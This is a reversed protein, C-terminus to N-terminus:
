DRVPAALLSSPEAHQNAAVAVTADTVEEYSSTEVRCVRLKEVLDKRITPSAALIHAPTTQVLQSLSLIRVQSPSLAIRMALPISADTMAHLCVIDSRKAGVIRPFSSRDPLTLFGVHTEEKAKDIADQIALKAKEIGAQDRGKLTWTSDGEEADKYNGVIEWQEETSTATSEVDVDDVRAVLATPSLSSPRSPLLSQIPKAFPEVDV